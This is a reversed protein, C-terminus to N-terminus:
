RSSPAERSPIEITPRVQRPVERPPPAERPPPPAPRSSPENQAVKTINSNSAISSPAGFSPQGVFPIEDSWPHTNQWPDPGHIDFREINPAPAPPQQRINSQISIPLAIPQGIAAQGMVPQAMPPFINVHHPLNNNSPLQTMTPVSM